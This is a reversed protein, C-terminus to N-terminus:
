NWKEVRQILSHFPLKIIITLSVNHFSMRVICGCVEVVLWLSKSQKCTPFNCWGCNVSFGGQILFVLIHKTAEFHVIITITHISKFGSYSTEEVDKKLM